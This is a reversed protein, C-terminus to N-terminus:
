FRSQKLINFDLTEMLAQCELFSLWVSRRMSLSEYLAVIDKREYTEFDIKEFIEALSIEISKESEKKDKWFADIEVVNKGKAYLSLLESLSPLTYNQSLIKLLPNEKMQLEKHYLLEVLYAFKESMKTFTLLTQKDLTDFYSADIGNAWVQMQKVTNELHM